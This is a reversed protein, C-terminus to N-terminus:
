DSLKMGQIQISIPYIINEQYSQKLLERIEDIKTARIDLGRELIIDPVFVFKPRLTMYNRLNRITLISFFIDLEAFLVRNAFLYIDEKKTIRFVLVVRLKIKCKISGISLISILLGAPTRGTEQYEPQRGLRGIIRINDIIYLTIHHLPRHLPIYIPRNIPRNVPRIILRIIPRDIPRNILRNVIHGLETRPHFAGSNHGIARTVIIRTSTNIDLRYAYTISPRSRYSM